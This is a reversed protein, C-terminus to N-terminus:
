FSRSYSVSFHIGDQQIDDDRSESDRPDDGDFNDSVDYGYYLQARLNALPEWIFGVGAGVLMRKEDTDRLTSILDVDVDDWSQGVDIFPAFVLNQWGPEESYGPIPFQIEITGAWGNDRVLLNEPYGRVTNAGGIALKELSMLADMSYQGTLRLIFQSREHLGEFWSNMRKIYLGQIVLADFEGDAGTPNQLAELETEPDFITADLADLGHRWTGRLAGVHSDGRNVWDVGLMAVATNAEGRQAGPSFSFKEGLLTTESSKKELGISLSLTNNLTDIIPQTLMFGATDSESEIDLREFADEVIDADSASYYLQLRTDWRTVPIEFSAM